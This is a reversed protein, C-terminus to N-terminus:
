PRGDGNEGLLPELDDEDNNEDDSSDSSNRGWVAAKELLCNRAPPEQLGVGKVEIPLDSSHSHLGSARLLLFLSVAACFVPPSITPLTMHRATTVM